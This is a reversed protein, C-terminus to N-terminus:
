KCFNMGNFFCPQSKIYYGADKMACIWCVNFSKSIFARRLFPYKTLQMIVTFLLFGTCFLFIGFPSTTCSFTNLWFTDEANLGVGWFGLHSPLQRLRRWRRCFPRNRWRAPEPIHVMLRETVPGVSKVALSGVVRLKKKLFILICSYISYGNLPHRHTKPIVIRTRVLPRWLSLWVLVIWILPFVSFANFM